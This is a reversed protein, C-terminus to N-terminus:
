GNSKTGAQYRRAYYAQLGHKLRQTYLAKQKAPYRYKQMLKPVLKEVEKAAAKRKGMRALRAEVDKLFARQARVTATRVEGGRGTVIAYGKFEKSLLADLSEVWAEIDALALFPPQQYAVLDGVFVVKAKSLVVWSAGPSPGGHAEVRLEEQEAIHIQTTGTFVVRPTVWRLGNLGSLGEWEAGSEQRLSKFVAARRRYQRASEEHTVVESNLTQAGLTRDPHSDLSVLVRRGKAGKKKLANVWARGDEPKLPADILVAGREAVVAGVTVGAYSSEIYIDGKIKKM